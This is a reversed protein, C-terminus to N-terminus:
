EKESDHLGGSLCVGGLAVHTEFGGEGFYFFQFLTLATDLNRQCLLDFFIFIQCSSQSLLDFFCLYTRSSLIVVFKHLIKFCLLALLSLLQCLSVELNLTQVLFDLAEAFIM